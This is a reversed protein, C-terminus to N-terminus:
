KTWNKNIKRQSDDLVPMATYWRARWVMAEMAVKAVRSSNSMRSVLKESVARPQPQSAKRRKTM